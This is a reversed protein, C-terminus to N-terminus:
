NSFAHDKALSTSAAALRGALAVTLWLFERCVFFTLFKISRV